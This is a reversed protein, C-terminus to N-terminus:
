QPMAQNNKKARWPERKRAAALAEATVLSNAIQLAAENYGLQDAIKKNKKKEKRLTKLAKHAGSIGTCAAAAAFAAAFVVPIAGGTALGGVVVMATLVGANIGSVGLNEKSTINKVAANFAIALKPHNTSFKSM